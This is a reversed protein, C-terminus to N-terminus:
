RMEELEELTLEIGHLGAIRIIQRYHKAPVTMNYKWGNVAGTSIRLQRAVNRPGGLKAVLEAITM